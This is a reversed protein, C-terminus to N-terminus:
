EKTVSFKGDKYDVKLTDGANLEDSLIKQAIATEINAQLYRKLPRAGYQADYSNVAIASKAVDTIELKLQKDALRKELGATLIDIIKKIDDQTLPKFFVIEDLRNLFEPRFSQKLLNEVEQRAEEKIEGKEDIGELLYASGLNSTM